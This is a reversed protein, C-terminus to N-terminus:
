TGVLVTYTIHSIPKVPWFIWGVTDFYQLFLMEWCIADLLEENNQYNKEESNKWVCVCLTMIVQKAVWHNWGMITAYM